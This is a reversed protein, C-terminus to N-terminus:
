FEIASVRQTYLHNPTIIVLRWRRHLREALALCIPGLTSRDGCVDAAPGRWLTFDRWEQGLQGSPSGACETWQHSLPLPLSLGQTQM